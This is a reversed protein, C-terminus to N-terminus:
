RDSFAKVEGPAQQTTATTTGGPHHHGRTRHGQLAGERARPRSKVVGAHSLSGNKPIVRVHDLLQLRVGNIISKEFRIVSPGPSGYHETILDPVRECNWFLDSDSVFKPLRPFFGRDGHTVPGFQETRIPHHFFEFLDFLFRHSDCIEV